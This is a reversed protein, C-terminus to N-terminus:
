IDSEKSQHTRQVIIFLDGLPLINHKKGSRLQVFWRGRSMAPTEVGSVHWYKSM